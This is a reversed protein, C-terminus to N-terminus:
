FIFVNKSSQDEALARILLLEHFTGGLKHLSHFLMEMLVVSPQARDIVAM